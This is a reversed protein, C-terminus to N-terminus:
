AVCRSCRMTTACAQPRRDPAPAAGSHRRWCRRRPGGGDDPMSAAPPTAEGDHRAPTTTRPALLRAGTHRCASARTRAQCGQLRLQQTLRPALGRGTGHGKCTIKLLLHHPSFFARTLDTCLTTASLLSSTSHLNGEIAKWEFRLWSHRRAMVKPTLAQGDREDAILVRCHQLVQLSRRSTVM